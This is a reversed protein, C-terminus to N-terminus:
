KRLSYVLATAMVIFAMTAHIGVYFWYDGRSEDRRVVTFGLGLCPPFDTGPGGIWSFALRVMGCVRTKHAEFRGGFKASDAAHRSCRAVPRPNAGCARSCSLFSPEHTTM